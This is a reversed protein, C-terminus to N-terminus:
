KKLPNRTRADFVWHSLPLDNESHPMGDGIRPLAKRTVNHSGWGSETHEVIYVGQTGDFTAAIICDGTVPHFMGLSIGRDIDDSSYVRPATDEPERTAAVTAVDQRVADFVPKVVDKRPIDASAGSVTDTSHGAGEFDAFHLLSM